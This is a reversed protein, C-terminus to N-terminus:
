LKPSDLIVNTIHRLRVRETQLRHSWIKASSMDLVNNIKLVESWRWWIASLGSHELCVVEGLRGNQGREDRGYGTRRGSKEEVMENDWDPPCYVPSGISMLLLMEVKDKQQCLGMGRHGVKQPRLPWCVSLFCHLLGFFARQYWDYCVINDNRVKNQTKSEFWVHWNSFHDFFIVLLACIYDQYKVFLSKHQNGM